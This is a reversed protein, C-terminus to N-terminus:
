GMPSASPTTPDEPEALSLLLDNLARTSPEDDGADIAEAVSALGDEVDDVLAHLAGAMFHADAAGTQRALGAYHDILRRVRRALTEDIALEGVAEADTELARRMVRVATEDQGRLAAALAYGTKPAADDLRSLCVVAFERLAAGADGDSLLQWAHEERTLRRPAAEEDDRTKVIEFVPARYVHGYLYSNYPRPCYSSSYSSNLGHFRRVGSGDEHSRCCSDHHGHALRLHLRGRLQHFRHHFSGAEAAGALMVVAGAALATLKRM